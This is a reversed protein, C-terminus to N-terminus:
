PKSSRKIQCHARFEESWMVIYEEIQEPTLDGVSIKPKEVIGDQKLGVKGDDLIIFNPMHPLIVKLKIELTNEKFSPLCLFLREDVGGLANPSHILPKTRPM